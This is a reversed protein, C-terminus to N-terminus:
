KYHNMDPSESQLKELSLITLNLSHIRSLLAHLAANDPISGELITENERYSIEMGEFWNAWSSDLRSKLRIRYMSPEYFAEM